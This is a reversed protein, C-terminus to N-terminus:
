FQGKTSNSISIQIRLSERRKSRHVLPKVFTTALKREVFRLLETYVVKRVQIETNQGEITAMAIIWEISRSTYIGLRESKRNLRNLPWTARSSPHSGGPVVMVQTSR